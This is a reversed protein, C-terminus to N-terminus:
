LPHTAKKRRAVVEQRLSMGHWLAEVTVLVGTVEVEDRDTTMAVGV